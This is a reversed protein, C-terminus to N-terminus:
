VVIQVNECNHMPRKAFHPCQQRVAAASGCCLVTSRIYRVVRLCQLYKKFYTWTYILTDITHILNIRRRKKKKKNVYEGVRSWREAETQERKSTFDRPIERLEM